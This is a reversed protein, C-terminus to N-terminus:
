SVKHVSVYLKNDGVRLMMPTYAWQFVWISLRDGPQLYIVDSVNPANNNLLPKTADPYEPPPFPMPENSTIQLNNGIAYSTWNAPGGSPDIYIAIAVYANPRMAVPYLTGNFWYQDTKFECRANVQYFGEEQATFFANPPPVALNPSGAITFENQEDWYPIGASLSTGPLPRTYNVPTWQNPQILQWFTSDIVPVTARVRSQNPLDTIGSQNYRVMTVGDGQNTTSLIGSKTVKFSGDPNFIGQSYQMNPGFQQWNTILFGQSANLSGTIDDLLLQHGFIGQGPMNNNVYLFAYNIPPIPPVYPPSVAVPGPFINYLTPIGPPGGIGPAFNWDGDWQVDLPVWNTGDYGMFGASPPGGAWAITGAVPTIATTPGVVIAGNLHLRENPVKRGIALKGEKTLVMSSDLVTNLDNGAWFIDGALGTGQGSVDLLAAPSTIGIGVRGGNLYSNGLAKLEINKNGNLYLGFVGNFPPAGWDVIDGLMRSAPLNPNGNWVELQPSFASPSGLSVLKYTGTNTTGIGLNGMSSLSLISDLPGAKDNSANFVDYGIGSGRVDLRAAPNNTGIGVDNQAIAGFAVCVLIIATLIKTKMVQSKPLNIIAIFIFFYISDTLIYVSNNKVM